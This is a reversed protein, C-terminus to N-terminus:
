GIGFNVSNSVHPHGEPPRTEKIASWTDKAKHMRPGAADSMTRKVAGVRAATRVTNTVVMM